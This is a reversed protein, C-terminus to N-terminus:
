AIKKPTFAGKFNSENKCYYLDSMKFKALYQDLPVAFPDPQCFDLEFQLGLLLIPNSLKLRLGLHKWQYVVAFGGKMAIKKASKCNKLVNKCHKPM